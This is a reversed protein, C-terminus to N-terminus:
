KGASAEKAESLFMNGLNRLDEISTDHLTICGYNPHRGFEIVVEGNEGVSISWKNIRM